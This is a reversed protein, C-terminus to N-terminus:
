IDAFQEQHCLSGPGLSPGTTQSVGLVVGDIYIPLLLKRWVCGTSIVDPPQVITIQGNNRHLM